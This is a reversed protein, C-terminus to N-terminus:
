LEEITVRYQKGYVDVVEIIKKTSCFQGQENLDLKVGSVRGILTTAKSSAEVIGKLCQQAIYDCYALKM